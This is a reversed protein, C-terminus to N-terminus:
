VTATSLIGVNFCLMVAGAHRRGGAHRHGGLVGVDGLVRVDGCVVGLARRHGLCAMPVDVDGLMGVDGLVGIGGAAAKGTFLIVQSASMKPDRSM